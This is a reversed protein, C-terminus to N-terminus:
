ITTEQFCNRGSSQEGRKQSLMKLFFFQKWVHKIIYSNGRGNRLLGFHGVLPSNNELIKLIRKEGGDRKEKRCWM